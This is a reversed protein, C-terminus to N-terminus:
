MQEGVTRLYRRLLTPTGFRTTHVLGSYSAAAVFLGPNRAAYVLAGYGGMSVGAIARRSAGSYRKEILERLEVLHFRPWDPTTGRHDPRRWRTYFGARGGDPLVVLVDEALARAAIDTHETWCGPGDDGGHLLYLVPWRRRGGPKWDRPTLLRVPVTRGLAASRVQLDVRNCQGLLEATVEIEDHRYM